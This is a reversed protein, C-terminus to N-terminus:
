RAGARARRYLVGGGILLALGAAGLMETSGAGTAALETGAEAAAKPAASPGGTRDAAPRAQGENRAAPGSSAPGGAAPAVEAPGGTRPNGAASEVSTPVPTAPPPPSHPGQCEECHETPKVPAAHAPAAANACTNGFAPNAAGVVNISNGCANVPIHVPAQIQNGSVVGPSGAAVGQAGAGSTGSAVSGAAGAAGSGAPRSSGQASGAQGSGTQGGGQHGGGAQSGGAQGNGAQGGGAHGSGAHAGGPRGSSNACNNGYAPNLVGIVDATNGCANIPVEIPVQVSNGSVVGPSGVAAGEAGAGAYSYGATSALVSGTAVATLLGKKAANRM